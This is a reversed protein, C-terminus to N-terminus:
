ICNIVKFFRGRFSIIKKMNRCMKVLKCFSSDFCNDKAETGSKTIFWQQQSILRFLETKGGWIQVLYSLTRRYHLGPFHWRAFLELSFNNQCFSPQCTSCSFWKWSKVTHQVHTVYSKKIRIIMPCFILVISFIIICHWLFTASKKITYQPRFQDVLAM